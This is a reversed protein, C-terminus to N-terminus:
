FVYELHSVRSAPSVLATEPLSSSRMGDARKGWEEEGRTTADNFQLRCLFFFWVFFALGFCLLACVFRAFLKRGRSM